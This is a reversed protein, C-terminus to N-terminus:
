IRMKINYLLEEIRKHQNNHTKEKWNTTFSIDDSYCLAQVSDGLVAFATSLTAAAWEDITYKNRCKKVISRYISKAQYFLERCIEIDTQINAKELLLYGYNSGPYYDKNIYFASEYSTIAGELYDYISTKLWLRKQIAGLICLSDVNVISDLNNNQIYNLTQKLNDLSDENRKYLCFAKKIQFEMNESCSSLLKDILDLAADFNDSNIYENILNLSQSYTLVKCGTDCNTDNIHKELSKIVKTDIPPIESMYSFFPSDLENKIDNIRQSLISIANLISKSTLKSSYKIYPVDYIDFPFDTLDDKIIITSYPRLAHRIGLEYMANANLCTIDAIVLDATVLRLFMKRGILSNGSVEDARISVFETQAVAPKIINNYVYDLDIGKKHLLSTKKGFGMIVFCTKMM